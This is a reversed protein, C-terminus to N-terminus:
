VLLTHKLHFWLVIGRDDQSGIMSEHLIVKLQSM